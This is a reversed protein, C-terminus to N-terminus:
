YSFLIDQGVGLMVFFNLSERCMLELFIIVGGGVENGPQGAGVV